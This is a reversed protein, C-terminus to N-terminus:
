LDIIKIGAHEYYMVQRIKIHKIFNVFNNDSLGANKLLLMKLKKATLQGNFSYFRDIVMQLLQMPFFSFM